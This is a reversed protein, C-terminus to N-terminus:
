HWFTGERTNTTKNPYFLTCDAKCPTVATRVATLEEGQGLRHFASPKSSSKVLRRARPERYSSLRYDWTM